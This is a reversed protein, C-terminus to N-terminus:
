ERDDDCSRCRARDRGLIKLCVKGARIDAVSVICCATPLVCQRPAPATGAQKARLTAKEDVGIDVGGHRRRRGGATRRVHLAGPHQCDRDAVRRDGLRRDQGLPGIPGLGGDVRGVIGVAHVEGPTQWDSDGSYSAAPM